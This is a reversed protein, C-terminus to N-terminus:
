NDDIERASNFPYRETNSSMATRFHLFVTLNGMFGVPPRSSLAFLTSPYSSWGAGSHQMPCASSRSQTTNRGLERLTCSLLHRYCVFCRYQALFFLFPFNHISSQFPLHNSHCAHKTLMLNKSCIPLIKIKYDTHDDNYNRKNGCETSSAFIRRHLKKQPKLLSM